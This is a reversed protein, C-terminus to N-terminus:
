WYFLDNAAIMRKYLKMRDAESCEERQFVLRSNPGVQLLSPVYEIRCGGGCIYKLNCDKCPSLNDVDSLACIKDSLRAIEEFTMDRINGYCKLSPVRNCFYVGGDAAITLAGYGCNSFLIKNKHNLAFKELKNGPYISEVIDEITKRYAENDIHTLSYDRGDLLEYSFKLNFKESCFTGLLWKGFNIYESKDIPYIPTVAITVRVEKDYFHKVTDLARQFQGAGRIKSSSEENFGDISVQVEDVKDFIYEGLDTPWATGNTLLTTTLHLGNATAVIERLDGRETIEGGSLTLDCGGHQQFARLLDLVESSQLENELPTGSFM